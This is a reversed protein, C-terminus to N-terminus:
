ITGDHLPGFLVAVHRLSDILTVRQQLYANRDLHPPAVRNRGQEPCSPAARSLEPCTTHRAPSRLLPPITLDLDAAFLLPVADGVVALRDRLAPV